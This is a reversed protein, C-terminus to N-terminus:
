FVKPSIVFAHTITFNSLIKEPKYESFERILHQTYAIVFDPRDM